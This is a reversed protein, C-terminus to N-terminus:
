LNSGRRWRNHRVAQLLLGVPRLALLVQRVVAVEARAAEAVAVAAVVAV